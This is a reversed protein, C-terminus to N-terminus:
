NGRLRRETAPRTRYKGPASTSRAAKKDCTKSTSRTPRRPMQLPGRRERQKDRRTARAPIAATGAQFSVSEHHDKSCM